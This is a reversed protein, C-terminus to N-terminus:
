KHKEIVAESTRIEASVCASSRTPGRRVLPETTPVYSICVYSDPVNTTTIGRYHRYTGVPFLPVIAAFTMVGCIALM